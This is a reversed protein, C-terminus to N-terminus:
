ILGFAASGHAIGGLRQLQLFEDQGNRETQLTGKDVNEL